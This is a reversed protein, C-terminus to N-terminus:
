RAGGRLSRPRLDTWLAEIRDLCAARDAAPGVATWGAPLPRDAPWVSYQEEANVVVRHADHRPKATRQM